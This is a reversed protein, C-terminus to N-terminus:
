GADPPTTSQLGACKKRFTDVGVGLRDCALKLFSENLLSQAQTRGLLQELNRIQKQLERVRDAEDVQEVRVRKPLLQNKGMKRIWNAVTNTGRIEYHVRAAEVSAFRGSEIESVVQLRFGLSYRKLVRRTV